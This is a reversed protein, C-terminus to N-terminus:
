FKTLLNISKLLIFQKIVPNKAMNLGSNYSYNEVKGLFTM